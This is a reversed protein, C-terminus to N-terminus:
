KRNAGSASKSSKASQALFEDLGIDDRIGELLKGVSDRYIRWPSGAMKRLQYGTLEGSQVMQRVTEDSCGLIAATQQSSLTAGPSWPLHLQLRNMADRRLDSM